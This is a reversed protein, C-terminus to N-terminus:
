LGCLIHLLERRLARGKLFISKIFEILVRRCGTLIKNSVVIRTNTKTIATIDIIYIAVGIFWNMILRNKRPGSPHVVNTVNVTYIENFFLFSHIKIKKINKM